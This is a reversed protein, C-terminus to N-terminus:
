EKDKEKNKEMLAQQQRRYNELENLQETYIASARSRIEATFGEIYNQISKINLGVESISSELSMKDFSMAQANCLTSAEIVKDGCIQYAEAASNIIDCGANIEGLNILQSESTIGYAM